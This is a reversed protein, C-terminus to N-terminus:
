ITGVAETDEVGYLKYMEKLDGLFREEIEPNSIHISKIRCIFTRIWPLMEGADYVEATFRAETESLREVHGCRRERVLREYIYQQGPAFEVTFEVHTLKQGLKGYFSIGWLHKSMRDLKRRKRDFEEDTELVKVSRIYDLRYTKMRGEKECWAMLYQRGNQTSIYIKLPTLRGKQFAESRRTRNEVEAFRQEHIAALLKLCIESDMTQTIYHHKYTFVDEGPLIDLLFSGIVGCSEVESFYAIADRWPILDPTGARSYVVTRGRKEKVLIGLETYEKLKKRITSEDLTMPNQFFSNYEEM